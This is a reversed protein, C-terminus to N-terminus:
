AQHGFRHSGGGGHGAEVADVVDGQQGPDPDVGGHGAPEQSGRGDEPEHAVAVDLLDHGERVGVGFRDLDVDGFAGGGDPGGQDLQGQRATDHNSADRAATRGEHGIAGSPNALTVPD